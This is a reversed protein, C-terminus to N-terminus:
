ILRPLDLLWPTLTLVVTLSIQTRHSYLAWQYAFKLYLQKVKQPMILLALTLAVVLYGIPNFTLAQGFEGIVINGVSRTTGCYPCPLGTLSRFPCLIPGDVFGNTRLSIQNILLFLFAAMGVRILLPIKELWTQANRIATM